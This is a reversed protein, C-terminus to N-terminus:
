RRPRTSSRTSRGPSSRSAPPSRSPSTRSWGARRASRATSSRTCTSRCSAPRTASCRRSGCRPARRSTATTAAPASATSSRPPRCSSRRNWTLLLDDGGGTAPCRSRSPRGPRASRGPRPTSPSRPRTASSTAPWRRSCSRSTPTSRRCRSSRWRPPSAVSGRPPSRRDARRPARPLDRDGQRRRRRELGAARGRVRPDDAGVLPRHAEQGRHRRLRDVQLLAGLAQDAGGARRHPEATASSRGTGGRCRTGSRSRPSPPAATSCRCMADPLTACRRRAARPCAGSRATTVEDAIAIALLYGAAVQAYFAKTSPM